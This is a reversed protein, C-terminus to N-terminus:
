AEVGELIRKFASDKELDAGSLNKAAKSAMEAQEMQMQQQRAQVEQAYSKQAEEDSVILKPNVGLADAYENMVAFPNIKHRAEPFAEFLPVTSQLFRDTQVVGVLKQAQAMLSTYEVKLKVGDLEEPAPPMLGARDMIAYTRDVLPDLLEDNERELVPGLSLLKEEHREAVERATIMRRDSEALMLFLDEFFAKSINQRIDQIDQILYRLMVVNVERIPRIAANNQQLGDVFTVDAPLMSVKQNRLSTPAQVAPNIGNEVAQAKRKQMLQLQKIDGLATMGPCDSGYWDFGTVEWRPALIPFEDFGSERLFTDGRSGKEWYCSAWPKFEAAFKNPDHDPNPAVYWVVDINSEYNGRDWLGKVTKSIHSWDIDTTGPIRGFEDVIQRVTMKYDMVFTDVLQRRSVGIYYSGVPFPYCRILELDDEMVSMSATAFIGQDGYVVPLVNYLNSKTFVTSMRNTVTHLWQKVPGFEALDPDPTTLRFWPRAPSTIGSHMGSRLTRAARTATSDIIKNSRRYNDRNAEDPFFRSRRPMIFDALDRYHSDYTARETQLKSRVLEFRQRKKMNDAKSAQEKV